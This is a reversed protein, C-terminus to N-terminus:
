VLSPSAAITMVAISTLVLSLYIFTQVHNRSIEEQDQKVTRGPGAPSNSLLIQVGKLRERYVGIKLCLFDPIDSWSEDYSVKRSKCSRAQSTEYWVNSSFKININGEQLLRETCIERWLNWFLWNCCMYEYMCTSVLLRTSATALGWRGIEGKTDESEWNSFATKVYSVYVYDRSGLAGKPSQNQCAM